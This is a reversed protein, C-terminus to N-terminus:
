KEEFITRVITLKQANKGIQLSGPTGTVGIKRGVYPELAVGNEAELYSVIEFRNGVPRTLAYRPTGDPAKPLKALIGYADFSDSSRSSIPEFANTSRIANRKEKPSVLAGTPTPAKAHASTGIPAAKAVDSRSSSVTKAAADTSVARWRIGGTTTEQTSREAQAIQRSEQNPEIAKVAEKETTSREKAAVLKANQRTAEGFRNSRYNPPPVILQKQTPLLPPLKSVGSSRTGTQPVLPAVRVEKNKSRFPNNASSFAFALRPPKEAARDTASPTPFTRGAGASPAFGPPVYVGSNANFGNFGSFNNFDNPNNAGNFAEAFTAGSPDANFQAGNSAGFTSEEPLLLPSTEDAGSFSPQVPRSPSNTSNAPNPSQPLHPSVPAARDRREARKIADYISQVVFREGDTPAADFLTEARSALLALEADSPSDQQLTQFVDANLRAIEMKFQTALEESLVTPASDANQTAQATQLTLSTPATQSSDLRQSTGNSAAAVVSAPLTEPVSNSSPSNQPFSTVQPSQTPQSTQTSRGNQANQALRESLAANELTPSVALTEDNSRALEELFERQFTLKSPLKALAPDALLDSSRLWRFEGAPPAIKLWTSGDPLRTEGLIKVSRGNKLGVQVIASEEVTAGGVRAPVAKGSAAVIRGISDSERRVFKANIWSFSGQPPRIACWGNADRFYAEVYRDRVVSGTSYASDSPASRVVAADVAIPISFFVVQDQRNQTNQGNQSPTQAFLQPVDTLIPSAPPILPACLGSLGTLVLLLTSVLRRPRAASSFVRQRNYQQRKSM